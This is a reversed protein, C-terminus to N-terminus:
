GGSRSWCNSCDSMSMDSRELVPLTYTAVPAYVSVQKEDSSPPASIAAVSLLLVIALPAALTKYIPTISM